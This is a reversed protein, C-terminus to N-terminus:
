CTVLDAPLHQVRNTYVIVRADGDIDIRSISANHVTWNAAWHTAYNEPHRAMGTYENVLQDILDGHIVLAVHDDTGGHHKAIFDIIRRVRVLFVDDSEHSRDYWGGDGLSEPLVLDPFREAFYSRGPGPVGFKSGDPRLDYVGQREFLDADAVLSLGCSRAVHEATLISRTMLSCYVHTLGYGTRDHRSPARPHHSPDGESAGLHAALLEAQRDGRDTLEPDSVRAMPNGLAEVANNASQGHRILYLRM